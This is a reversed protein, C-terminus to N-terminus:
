ERIWRKAKLEFRPLSGPTTLEVPVRLNLQHRIAGAVEEQLAAADADPAPELRLRLEAMGTQETVVVQYEAVDAFRRLIHEFASPYINVGRVIIMDDARGLIGGRLVFADGQM